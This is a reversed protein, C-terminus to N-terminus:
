GARLEDRTGQPLVPTLERMFSCCSRPEWGEAERVAYVFRHADCPVPFLERELCSTMKRKGKCENEGEVFGLPIQWAPPLSENWSFTM